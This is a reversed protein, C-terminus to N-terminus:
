GTVVKYRRGQQIRANPSLNNLALFRERKATDVQMRSALSQVTDGAKATVLEVSLPRVSAKEAATMARFSYTLRKLEDVIPTPTGRPIAIQFRVMDAPPWDIAVLRIDVPRGKITGDFSATAAPLNNVAFADPIVLSKGGLWAQAIYNQPDLRARNDDMDFVAIAGGEHAIVVQDPQNVIDFGDPATFTFGLAPHYFHSDRVFGQDAGDGYTIGDIKSLFEDPNRVAQGASYTGAIKSARVVRDATQPHSAFYSFKPAGKGTAKGETDLYGDMANLFDAMAFTDYGARSLYRIGLEDAQHEQDRSYSSMYLNSGVSLAKSINPDGLAASAVTAGLSTLLGHSYRTAQHRATIHGIEHALVGALESEDNAVALLGRTVYIYGGPMAFANIVPSDLVTFRYSVDGRETNKALKQGISNVYAQVAPNKYVGGYEKVIKDHNEAGIAAEQRPSMLGSFEQEGTAPNVACASLLFLAFFGSVVPLVRSFIQVFAGHHM